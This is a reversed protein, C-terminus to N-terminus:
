NKVLRDGVTAVRRKTVTGGGRHKGGNAGAAVTVDRNREPATAVTPFSSLESIGAKGIM